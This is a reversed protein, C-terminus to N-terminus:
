VIGHLLPYLCEFNQNRIDERMQNGKSSKDPNNEWPRPMFIIKTLKSRFTHFCTGSNLAKNFLRLEPKLNLGSIRVDYFFCFNASICLVSYHSLPFKRHAPVMRLLRPYGIAYIPWSLRGAFISTGGFYEAATLTTNRTHLPPSDRPGSFDDRPPGHSYRSHTERRAAFRSSVM